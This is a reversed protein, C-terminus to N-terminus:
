SISHVRIFKKRPLYAQSFLPQSLLWTLSCDGYPSSDNHSRGGTQCTQIQGFLTFSSSIWCLCLVNIWVFYTPPWLYFSAEERASHDLDRSWLCSVNSNSGGLTWIGSISFPKETLFIPSWCSCCSAYKFFIPVFNWSCSLLPSGYNLPNTQVKWRQLGPNSGFCLM